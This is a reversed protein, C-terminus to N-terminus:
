VTLDTVFGSKGRLTLKYLIAPPNICHTIIMIYLLPYPSPTRTSSCVIANQFKIITDVAIYVIAATKYILLTIVTIVRYM